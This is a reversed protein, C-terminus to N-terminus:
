APKGCPSLCPLSTHYNPFLLFLIKKLEFLELRQLAPADRTGQPTCKALINRGFISERALQQALTKATSEMIPGYKTKVPILCWKEIDSSPLPEMTNGHQKPPRLPLPKPGYQMDSSPLPEMINGHRKPPRLPLPEPGYQMDSSPLPKMINGHRKPPHLPLPEPGYQMNSSPLPEMTNGHQKPPRLPLPEPGYQMQSSPLPEM